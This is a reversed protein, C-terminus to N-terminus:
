KTSSIFETKQETAAQIQYYAHRQNISYLLFVIIQTGTDLIEPTATDLVRQRRCFVVSKDIDM